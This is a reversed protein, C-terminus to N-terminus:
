IRNLLMHYLRRGISIPDTFVFQTLINKTPPYIRNYEIPIIITNSNCKGLVFVMDTTEITTMSLLRENKDM